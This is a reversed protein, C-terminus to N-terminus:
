GVEGDCAIINFNYNKWLGTKANQWSLSYNSRYCRTEEPESADKRSPHTFTFDPTNPFLGEMYQKEEETLSSYSFGWTGVKYLVVLRHMAGGEDRGTEESDIDAYSASVENDPVLM